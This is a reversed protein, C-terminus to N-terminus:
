AAPFRACFFSSGASNLRYACPNMGGRASMTHPARPSWVGREKASRTLAEMACPQAGAGTGLTLLAQCIGSAV